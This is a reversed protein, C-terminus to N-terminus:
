EAISSYGIIDNELLNNDPSILNIQASARLLCLLASVLSGPAHKPYSGARIALVQNREQITQTNVALNEVRDTFINYFHVSTVHPFIHSICHYFDFDGERHGV